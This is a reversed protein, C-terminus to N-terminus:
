RAAVARNSEASVAQLEEEVVRRLTDFDVAGSVFRGNVFFGPTGPLAVAQAEAVHAKILEATSGSDLCKGFAPGDLKLTRAHEKLMALDYQKSAFLLDHFEWYKGQAAACRTAEAAKQANAHNPLPVDKYAFVIKGKFDAELKAIAPQIQQCYPCEYDAYEVVKVPADTNGRLPTNELGINVRPASLRVSIVAQSRLSQLYATKAKAGRRQRISDIIKERVAEFLETTDVGDYFVRLAEESPVKDAVSDVHRKLLDAVSLNEKKAQRELLYDNIFDDAARKEAEFLTNRAQFLGAGKTRQVDAATFKAGDVEIVIARNNSATSDVTEAAFLTSIALALVGTTTIITM